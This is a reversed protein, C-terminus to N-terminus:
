RPTVAPAMGAMYDRLAAAARPSIGQLYAVERAAGAKDGLQLRALGLQLHAEPSDRVADQAGGLLLVVDEFRGLGNLAAALNAYADRYGPRLEIARRLLAVAEAYRGEEFCLSGLNYVPDAYSPALAMALRFEREAERPRGLGSLIVGLNDRARVFAPDLRVAEQLQVLAEEPRGLRGLAVGLNQRPRAKAPGKSVADAWISAESRWVENRQWTAVALPASLLLGAAVTVRGARAPALRLALLGLATAVATFLGVSPLYVRHEFLVDVIPVLSSEVSLALFFWAVGFAALRGGPDVRRRRRPDSAWWLWAAAGALAALVALSLAVRPELLSRAWPFDHDLSQGAPWAILRLYTAVVAVQTVLYDGRSAATQVRTLDTVDSLLDGAARHTSAVALPIVAATLLVPALWSLRRRWSGEFFAAELLAVAFPLTFAIEKTQMALLAPVLIAAYGAAGALGRGRGADRALRWRAYLLVALLYFTTALSAYRQVVYSVAQTQIPHAVFLLSAAFAVAGSWPALASRSLWPTRFLTRVLGLVLLANLLHVLVNTAHFGRPDLGGVRRNLAFTLNGVARSPQARYGAGGPLFSAPDRVTPSDVIHPTDDFVFGAELTGAYALAGVLAVAAAALPAAGRPSPPAM